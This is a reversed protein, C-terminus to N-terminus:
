GEHYGGRPRLTVGLRKLIQWVRQPTIGESEALDRLTLGRGKRYLIALRKNRVALRKSMTSLIIGRKERTLGRQLLEQTIAEFSTFTTDPAPGFM